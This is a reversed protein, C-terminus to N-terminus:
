EESSTEVLVGCHDSVQPENRGDFIVECKRIKVRRDSLILDIRISDGNIGKDRWGDIEDMVTADGYQEQAAAFCDQWGCRTILDYGENRIHSPNNFDGMLWVKELGRINGCLKKWQDSFPEQSDGWWSTHVSYFWGDENKIGLIRRTRWNRYTHTRSILFEHTRTIPKRSLVALGEEYIGYGIKIPLWSWFYKLGGDSLISAVSLAHNGSKLPVREQCPVYGASKQVYEGSLPQNVEQLAIVDPKIRQIAATFDLLKQPYNEEVLSHTNLTLLKM